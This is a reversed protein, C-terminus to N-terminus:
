SRPSARPPMAGAGTDGESDSDPGGEVAGRPQSGSRMRLQGLAGEGLAQRLLDRLERVERELQDVRTRLLQSGAAPTSPEVSGLSGMSEGRLIFSGARELSGSFSEGRMARRRRRDRAQKEEKHRLKSVTARQAVTKMREQEEDIFYWLKYTLVKFADQVIFWIFCYIWVALLSYPVNKLPKMDFTLGKEHFPWFAAFITSLGLAVFAASGLWVGPPREWFFKRTRAAFVTLFDSISIKLYLITQAEGYTVFARDRSGLINGFFTGPNTCNAQLTYVLLIVSSLCATLGLVTSIVGVQRLDWGQPVDAPVM